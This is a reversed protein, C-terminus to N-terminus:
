HSGLSGNQLSVVVFTDTDDFLVLDNSAEMSFVSSGLLESSDSSFLFGGSEASLQDSLFLLVDRSSDSDACSSVSVELALLGSSGMGSCFASSLLEHFRLSNGVVLTFGHVFFVM